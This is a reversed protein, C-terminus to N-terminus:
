SSMPSGGAPTPAQREPVSAGFPPGAKPLATAGFSFSAGRSFFAGPTSSTLPQIGASASKGASNPGSGVGMRGAMASLREQMDAPIAPAPLSPRLLAGLTTAALSPNSAPPLVISPRAAPTSASTSVPPARPPPRPRPACGTRRPLPKIAPRPSSSPPSPSSSNQRSGASVAPSAPVTSPAPPTIFRATLPATSGSQLTSTSPPPTVNMEVALGRENSTVSSPPAVLTPVPPASFRQQTPTPTADTFNFNFATAQLQPPQLPAPPSSRHSLPLAKIPRPLAVSGTSPSMASAIAPEVSSKSAAQSSQVSATTSDLTIVSGTLSPVRLGPPADVEDDSDDSLDTSDADFDSVVPAGFTFKTPSPPLSPGHGDKTALASTLRWSRIDFTTDTASNLRQELGLEDESADSSDLSHVSAAYSSTRANADEKLEGRRRNQFWITIQRYTMGTMNVLYTKEPKTLVKGREHLAEFIPLFKTDLPPVEEGPKMPTNEDEEGQEAEFDEGDGDSESESDAASVSSGEDESSEEDRQLTVNEFHNQVKELASDTLSDLFAKCAAEVLVPLESPNSSMTYVSLRELLQRRSSEILGHYNSTETSLVSMIAQAAEEPLGLPALRNPVEPLCTKLPSVAHANFSPPRQSVSPDGGRGLFPQLKSRISSTVQLFSSDTM